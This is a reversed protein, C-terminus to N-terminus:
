IDIHEVTNSFGTMFVKATNEFASADGSVFFKKASGCQSNLINKEELATKLAEVEVASSSVLTVDPLIETALESFMPYHTCGLILTDIGNEKLPLLYEKLAEEIEANGKRFKGQEILPVLKPCAVGYVEADSRHKKINKEYSGSRITANTAIVGIKGNKTVEAAKKATPEIIGIVPINYLKEVKERAAADATNCAIVIAKIDFKSLLKVDNLVLEAIEETPRTGYPVNATDGFYIIDEDPLAESICKAVTLGGVGSDFVGIPKNNM